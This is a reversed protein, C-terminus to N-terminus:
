TAFHKHNPQELRLGWTKPDLTKELIEENEPSITREGNEILSILGQSIKTVTSLKRQSWGQQMRLEKVRAGNIKPLLLSKETQLEAELKIENDMIDKLSIKIFAGLLQDFFGKPRHSKTRGFGIPQIEPPYTESDFEIAWGKEQLILLDSDWQSVLKKRLDQNNQSAILKQSGYAIEMLTKVAVLSDCDFQTKFLLWMMLRAAGEHHQWISMVSELLNKSLYGLQSYAIKDKLGEENLFYRAWLGPKVIFTIGILEKDGLLNEQYEYRKGLIHWLRGEEVTFGKVKGQTPYSIFTTIKCPQTAIEEILALKEHRSKDTRKKLGLYSEIQRDSIIFEQEWPRELQTAHAAFILHMCAARIDFTDIVALAAAGALTVPNEDELNDTVWFHIAGNGIDRAYRLKGERDNLWLLQNRQTLINSAEWIPLASAMRNIKQETFLTPSTTPQTSEPHIATGLSQTLDENKLDNGSAKAVKKSSVKDSKNKGAM